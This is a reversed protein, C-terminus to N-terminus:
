FFMSDETGTGSDSHSSANNLTKFMSSLHQMGGPMSEINQLTRDQNRMMEQRLRPNRASRTLEQFFSPDNMAEALEPMEQVM